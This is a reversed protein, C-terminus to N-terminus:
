WTFTCQAGSDVNVTVTNHGHATSFQITGNCGTEFVIGEDSIRVGSGSVAVREQLPEIADRGAWVRTVTLNVPSPNYLPLTYTWMGTAEDFIRSTGQPFSFDPALLNPAGGWGYGTPNVIAPDANTEGSSTVMMLLLPLLVAGVAVAKFIKKGSLRQIKQYQLLRAVVLFIGASFIIAARVTLLVVLGGLQDVGAAWDLYRDIFGVGPAGVFLTLSPLAGFFTIASILLIFIAGFWGRRSSKLYFCVILPMVFVMPFFILPLRIFFTAATVVLWVLITLIYIRRAWREWRPMQPKAKAPKDQQVLREERVTLIEPEAKRQRRWAVVYVTVGLVLLIPSVIFCLFLGLVYPLSEPPHLVQNALFLGSLMFVVPALVILLIGRRKTLKSAASSPSTM